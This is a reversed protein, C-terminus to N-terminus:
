AVEGDAHGNRLALDFHFVAHGKGIRRLIAVYQATKKIDEVQQKLYEGEIFDQMQADNYKDAVSWVNMLKQYNLKELSLALEMAYLADGKDSDSFEMKPMMISQLQVRGGRINQYEMLKEAHEREEESQEKFYQAFGRLAVDDRDFYAYMSHYAYSINYEINIQENIAAECDQEFMLRGLSQGGSTQQVTALQTQVENFPQFVVGTLTDVTKVEAQCRIESRKCRTTQNTTRPVLGRASVSKTTFM